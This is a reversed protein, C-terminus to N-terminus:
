TLYSLMPNMKKFEKCCSWTWRSSLFQSLFSLITFCTTKIHVIANDLVCIAKWACSHDVQVNHSIDVRVQQYKPCPSQMDESIVHHKSIKDHDVEATSMTPPSSRGPNCFPCPFRNCRHGTPEPYSITVVEPASNPLGSESASIIQVGHVANQSQHGHCKPCPFETCPHGGDPFTRMPDVIPNFTMLLGGASACTNDLGVNHSQGRVQQYKPRPTIQMEESIAHHQFIEYHDVEAMSMAPPSSRGPHCLPCPFRNCRHGTPEPLSITVVEPAPNPLGSESASIIQVGHVANQSQHGHCKPCLFESCRHGGDPFTRMPDVIPNFTMLLVGASACTNDLGVNQSQGSAQQYKPRPTTQMEESIAHHQFNESHDVEATSMTPPSSRGPHCLPCPFRNCRHGTPEPLSITVVEPAPNPLGSESASIIQVGHVANQSQHGHCKPCPFETCRHGGDPFTRIPVIPNVPLVGASAHRSEDLVVNHSPDRVQQYKPCPNQLEESIVHHKIEDRCDEAETRCPHCLPCPFRNCRHRTTPEPFSRSKPIIANPLAGAGAHHDVGKHFQDTNCRPCPIVLTTCCHSPEPFSLTIMMPFKTIHELISGAADHFGGVKQPIIVQDDHSHYSSWSFQKCTYLSEPCSAIGPVIVETSYIIMLQDNCAM